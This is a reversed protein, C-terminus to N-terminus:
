SEEPPAAAFRYDQLVLIHTNIKECLEDVDEVTLSTDNECDTAIGQFDPCDNAQWYRLAGLIANSEETELVIDM